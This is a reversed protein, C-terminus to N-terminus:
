GDRFQPSHQSGHMQVALKVNNTSLQTEQQRATPTQTPTQNQTQPKFKLQLRDGSAAQLTLEDTPEDGFRQVVGIKLHTDQGKAAWTTAAMGIWCAITLLGCVM